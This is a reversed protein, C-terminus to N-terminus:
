SSRGLIFVDYTVQATVGEFKLLHNTADAVALDGDNGAILIMASNPGLDPWKASDSGGFGSNWAAGSGEGGVRLKGGATVRVGIAAIEALAMTQGCSDRGDGAGVDQGVFDFLDITETAAAALTKGYAAWVRDAQLSLVGTQWQTAIQQLALVVQAVKSGNLTNQLTASLNFEAKVSALSRAM